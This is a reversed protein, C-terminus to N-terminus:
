KTGREQLGERAMWDTYDYTGALDPFSVNCVQIMNAAMRDAKHPDVEVGEEQFADWVLAQLSKRGYAMKLVPLAVTSWEQMIELRDPQEAEEDEFGESWSLVGKKFISWAPEPKGYDEYSKEQSTKAGKRPVEQPFPVVKEKQFPSEESDFISKLSGLVGPMVSLFSELVERQLAVEDASPEVVMEEIQLDFAKGKLALGRIVASM